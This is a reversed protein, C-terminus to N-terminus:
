DRAEPATVSWQPGRNFQFPDQHPPGRVGVRQQGGSFSARDRAHVIPSESRSRSMGSTVIGRRCPQHLCLGVISRIAVKTQCHLKGRAAFKNSVGPKERLCLWKHHATPQGGASWPTRVRRRAVIWTGEAHPSDRSFTRSSSMLRSRGPQRRDKSQM